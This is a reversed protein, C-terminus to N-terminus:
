VMKKVDEQIKEGIGVTKELGEELGVLFDKFPNSEVAGKLKKLLKRAAVEGKKIIKKPEHFDLVGVNELNVNIIFDIEDGILDADSVESSLIQLSKTACELIGPLKKTEEKQFAKENLIAHKNRRKNVNIAIIVDAKKSLVETPVPDIVGGDILIRGNNVVPIFVGPISISARIARVLDGRSFVVERKEELDFATIQLPIKLDKFTLNGFKDRLLAEIKDGKILGKTPISYDLIHKWDVKLIDREIKKINPEMSYFAAVIAGMSTGALYDIPINNEQLVKLVGIHALGRAGGGSLAVGIKKKAM